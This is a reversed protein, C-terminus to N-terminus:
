CVLSTGGHPGSLAHEVSFPKNCICHSPLFPPRWGYRLCLADRFAGKSLAFGHRELPLATLWTSAGTEKTIEVSRQLSHPLASHINNATTTLDLRHDQRAQHKAQMQKELANIPFDTSQQKILDILPGTVRQSTVHQKTTEKVPNTIGLRGLRSPLAMLDRVADSLHNQGTLCVLFRRRIAEELPQFLHSIDPVTRSLYTWKSALGHTLAAYAAHPQSEAISTLRDIEEVWTAVKDKVYKERFSNSGIAAGLHRNGENTIQVGSGCFVDQAHSLSEEKVILWTKSANPFYGYEPGIEIQRDWWCRLAHLDGAASADDAFWAQRVDETLLRHILPTTSIAYMAMALPDGQTTGERSPITEGNIYQNSDVRYMNVLVKALAPCLHLINRLATQRNLSNFANSADVQIVANVHPLSFLQQMAHM